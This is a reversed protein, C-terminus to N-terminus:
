EFISKLVEKNFYLYDWLSYITILVATMMFVTISDDYSIPLEIQYQKLLLTILIGFISIAQVIAKVKGSTRAGLIIKKSAAIIRLTAVMSDRYFFVLIMWINAYGLCLFSLFASMRALSDALPDLVKGIDSELNFKRAVIGDLADSVESLFAVILAAWLFNIETGKSQIFCFVFIPALLIRFVTIKTALNM